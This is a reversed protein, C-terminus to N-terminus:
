YESPTFLKSRLQNYYRFYTELSWNIWFTIHWEFPDAVYMLLIKGRGSMLWGISLLTAFVLNYLTLCSVVFGEDLPRVSKWVFTYSYKLWSIEILTLLFYVALVNECLVIFYALNMPLILGFIILIIRVNLLFINM